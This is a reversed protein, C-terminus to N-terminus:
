KGKLYYVKSWMIRGRQEKEELLVGLSLAALDTDIRAFMAQGVQTMTALERGRRFQLTFKVRKGDVLFDGARKLKIHYDQDGINPRFKIEKVQIVKQAKKAKNEQKKKEYLFKGHDMIKAVVPDAGEPSILVLDLSEEEARLLAQARTIVGLNEGTSAIVRMEQARIAQNIMHKPKPPRRDQFRSRRGKM